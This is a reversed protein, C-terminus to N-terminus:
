SPSPPPPAVSESAGPSFHPGPASLTRASAPNPAVAAPMAVATLLSVSGTGEVREPGGDTTSHSPRPGRVEPGDAQAPTPNPLAPDPTSAPPSKRDEGDANDGDSRSPLKEQGAGAIKHDNVAATKHSIYALIAALTQELKGLHPTDPTATAILVA